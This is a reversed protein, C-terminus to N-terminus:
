IFVAMHTNDLFSVDERSKNCVFCASLNGGAIGMIYSLDGDGGEICPALDVEHVSGSVGVM